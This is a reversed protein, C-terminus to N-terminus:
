QKEYMLKKKDFFHCQLGKLIRNACILRRLGSVLHTARKGDEREM